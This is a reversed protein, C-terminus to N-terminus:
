MSWFLSYTATVTKSQLTSICSFHWSSGSSNRKLIHTRSTSYLTEVARHVKLRPEM